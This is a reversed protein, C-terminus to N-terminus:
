EEYFLGNLYRKNNLREEVNIGFFDELPKYIEPNDKLVKKGADIIVQIGNKTMKGLPQRVKGSPMGLIKMFTKIALPNRAKCMVTGYPTEEQTKVTVITDFFPQLAKAIKEGNAIDGKNIYETMEQVAKPAINSVVSIVGSAKINPDTMMSFTKDDDGSLIDFDKGCCKRVLKMNELDGTAEKVASINPYKKYAIALDQASLQTGTRGPIIYPIINTKPFAKAVPELYERRIELSSPGNYYPDVLLVADIGCKVAYGTGLITESTSNSGTGGITICRGKTIKHVKEIVKNHEEWDLTPSEGTTGVALIGSVGSTIQFEVLKELGEYDVGKEDMPTINATYCGSFM